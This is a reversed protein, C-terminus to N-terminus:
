PDRRYTGGRRAPLAFELQATRLATCLSTPTQGGARLAHAGLVLLVWIFPREYRMCAFPESLLCDAARYLAFDTGAGWLELM